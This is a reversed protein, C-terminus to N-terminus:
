SGPTEAFLRALDLDDQEDIDVSRRFPMVHGRLGPGYFTRRERFAAVTVAYTSGNDVCLPGIDAASREVLEPWKPMLSGDAAMVLAQHPPHTYRTVAMAFECVGPEILDLVASIDDGHRLPATAYLFAVIDYRRGQDEERDLLDLGVDILSADDAALSEPRDSVEAGAARATAAIDADETSVVIRDFCRCARAADITWEIIPRGRFEAVNKRPLRRSGGRAPIIALCKM